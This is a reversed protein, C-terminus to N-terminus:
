ARISLFLINSKNPEVPPRQIASGCYHGCKQLFSELVGISKSKFDGIGCILRGSGHKEFKAALRSSEDRQPTLTASYNFVLTQAFHSLPNELSAVWCMEFPYSLFAMDRMISSTRSNTRSAPLLPRKASNMPAPTDRDAGANMGVACSIMPALSSCRRSLTGTTARHM